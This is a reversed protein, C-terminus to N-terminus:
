IRDQLPRPCNVSAPHHVAQSCLVRGGGQRRGWWVKWGVDLCHMVCHTAGPGTTMGCGWLLLELRRPFHLMQM